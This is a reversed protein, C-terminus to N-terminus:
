VIELWQAATLEQKKPEESNKMNHVYCLRCNFNCRSTLEFTGSIPVAGRVAKALLMRSIPFDIEWPEREMDRVEKRM